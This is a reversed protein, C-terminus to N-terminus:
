VCTVGLRVIGGLNCLLSLSISSLRMYGYKTVYIVITTIQLISYFPLAHIVKSENRKLSSRVFRVPEVRLLVTPM